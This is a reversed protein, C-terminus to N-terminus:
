QTELRKRNLKKYKNPKTPQVRTQNKTVVKMLLNILQFLFIQRTVQAKVKRKMIKSSRNKRIVDQTIKTLSKIKTANRTQQFSTKFQLQNIARNVQQREISDIKMRRPSRNKRIVDQTIKTLSKIKTANRTQQFSTKFQRPNIPWNVQKREISDIM